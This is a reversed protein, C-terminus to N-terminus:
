GVRESVAAEVADAVRDVDERTMAPFLPLTLAGAYYREAGPLAFGDFGHRRYFPQRYVPIYHVNVGIGRAAVSEYVHRRRDPAVTVVFLHHAGRSWRPAELPLVGPVGALRERYWADLEIRKAVSTRLRRLQSSGLACQVDTLRYNYGLTRQEYWWPGEARELESPDRSIGHSRFRRLARDLSPDNTTVAGGEGTTIQKVAHLSFCCMASHHCSGVKHWQHDAARYSAGLGHAADEIVLLHRAEAIAAISEVDAVEGGFHVPVVVRLDGGSAAEDVGDPDVLATRPDVDAFRVPAGLYLAANATAVFTIPTTVVGAGPGVGAAAYAAHLAATGSSFAVAFRAGVARALGAEFRDVGPGQTLFDERLAAAVAEVDGDTIEQRAYPLRM